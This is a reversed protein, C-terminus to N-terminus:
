GRDQQRNLRRKLEFTFFLSFIHNRRTSDQESLHKLNLELVIKSNFNSRFLIIPSFFLFCYNQVLCISRITTNSFQEWTNQLQHSRMIIIHMIIQSVSCNSSTINYFSSISRREIAYCSILTCNSRISSITTSTQNWPPILECVQM